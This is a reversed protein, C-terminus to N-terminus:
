KIKLDKVGKYNSPLSPSQILRAGPAFTTADNFNPVEMVIPSDYFNNEVYKSFNGGNEESEM